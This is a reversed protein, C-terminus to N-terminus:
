RDRGATAGLRVEGGLAEVAGLMPCDARDLPCRFDAPIRGERLAERALAHARCGVFFTRTTAELFFKLDHGVVYEYLDQNWTPPDRPPDRYAVFRLKAPSWRRALEVREEPALGAWWRAADPGMAVLREEVRQETLPV